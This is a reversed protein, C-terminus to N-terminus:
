SHNDIGKHPTCVHQRQQHAAHRAARPLVRAARAPAPAAGAPGRQGLGRRAVGVGVGVGGRVGHEVSTVHVCNSCSLGSGYRARTGYLVSTCALQYILPYYIVQQKWWTKWYPSCELILKTHKRVWFWSGYAPYLICVGCTKPYFFCSM